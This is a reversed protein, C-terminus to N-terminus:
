GHQAFEFFSATLHYTLNAAAGNANGIGFQRSFFVEGIAAGVNGALSHLRLRLRGTLEEAM